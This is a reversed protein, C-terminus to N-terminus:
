VTAQNWYASQVADTSAYTFNEAFDKQIIINDAPIYTKSAEAPCVTKVRQSLQSFKEFDTLFKEKDANSM